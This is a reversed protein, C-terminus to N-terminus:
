YRWGFDLRANKFEPDSTNSIDILQIGYGARMFFGRSIDWRVGVQGGYTFKTDSFTSSYCVWGWYWDPYCYSPWDKINSDVYAFGTTVDVFPTLNGPLINWTGRVLGSFLNMEHSLTQPETEGDPTGTLTYDPSSFNMDFGLALHNTFNYGLGFGFGWADKISLSLDAPGGILESGSYNLNIITNWEGAREDPGFQFTGQSWSPGAAILLISFFLIVRINM